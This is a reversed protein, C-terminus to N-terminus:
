VGSGYGAPDDCFEQIQNEKWVVLRHGLAIRKPFRGEKELQTAKTRSIGTKQKVQHFRLLAGGSSRIENM